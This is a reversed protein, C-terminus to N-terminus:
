DESAASSEALQGAGIVRNRGKQKAAYLASDAAAVIDDRSTGFEPFGAVGASLTVPRAVGPFHWTEVTRRLKEAVESANEPSTSPLLLAFEEGGYRCVVDGKRLQSQFIVSVQRLVEDGLMHGFEDNLRKFNDLDLMVVALQDEYRDARTIEEQIRLEFFRRNFIGTLGDLYALQQTREFHRSNQIAAACIDAVSELADVDEDIFADERACDLIMVGLKEGFVVLPICLESRTEVVGRIFEPAKSVDNVVVPKGSEMARGALGTLPIRDGIARTATLKGMHARHYLETGELLLITIQDVNFRELMEKCVKELLHDLEVLATTQRAVANIAELHQARRQERSYLRANEIAISAQTSFLTLLDITEKDFFNLTESQIDLVGVVEDRVVLPIALESKTAPDGMLYRSDKTVDPVYVPRKNKVAAGIIGQGKPIVTHARLRGFESRVRLEGTKGDILLVGANQMQFYDRLIGLISSLVKDLDFTSMVAQSADYLIAVKQM